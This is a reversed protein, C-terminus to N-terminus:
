FPIDDGFDKDAQAQAPTRPAPEGRPASTRAPPNRPAGANDRAQKPEVRLSIIDGNRSEREWGSIWYQVGAVEISGRWDPRRENGDKENVFMVGSNSNDYQKGDAMSVGEIGKGVILAINELDGKSSKVIADIAADNTVTMLFSANVLSKDTLRWKWNDRFSSGAARTSESQIIPAVVSAARAHFQEVKADAKEEIRLAAAALRAAEATKGAAEADAAAKRKAAAEENAKLAADFAIKELRKREADAAAQLKRQAEKRIKEQEDDYALIKQDFLTKARELPTILNGWWAILGKKAVDLLRTQEMRAETLTKIRTNVRARAEQAKVSDSASTITFAQAYSEIGMSDSVQVGDPTPISLSVLNAPADPTPTSNTQM